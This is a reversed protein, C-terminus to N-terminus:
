ATMPPESQAVTAVSIKTGDANANSCPRVAEASSCGRVSDSSSSACAYDRGSFHPYVMLLMLFLDGSTGWVLEAWGVDADAFGEDGHSNVPRAAATRTRLVTM